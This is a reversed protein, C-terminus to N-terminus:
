RTLRIESERNLSLRPVPSLFVFSLILMPTHLVDEEMEFTGAYRSKSPNLGALDWAHCTSLAYFRDGMRKSYIDLSELM